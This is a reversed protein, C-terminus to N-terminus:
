RGGLMAPLTRVMIKLDLWLSWRDIYDLDIAVWRDFDPHHRASIQWLGTIGPKMSLRRRHWVDYGEVERPLPPRPGVLSMEGRLVNWLQPLEDISSRRLVRGVRTVRPDFSLKFAAGSIENHQLLDELREEADAVMTRFKYLQFQRGHLGVRTQKFLVPRGQGAASALAAVLLVPSLGILLVSSGVVDLLRKTFLSISRDPGHVLSQIVLGDFDEVTSGVLRPMSEDGPVRVVKGEDACIRTIAEILHWDSAPLCIAVEDVVLSHLVTDIDDLRGLIRRRLRPTGKPPKDGIHGIVRLGLERHAEIRDAFSQAAPSTGAILVFRTNLGRGRGIAFTTRVVLRAALTVAFQVVFLEILFLRSVQPLQFAFLFTFVGIGVLLTARALDAAQARASWRARLRYLGHAWVVLVWAASWFAMAFPVPVGAFAWARLWDDGFRFMSVILFLAAATLADAAMLSLRLVTIHRRIM